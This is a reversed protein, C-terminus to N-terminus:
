LIGPACHSPDLNVGTVEFELDSLRVGDERDAFQERIRGMEAPDHGGVVLCEATPVGPFRGIAEKMVSSSKGCHVELQAQATAEIAAM